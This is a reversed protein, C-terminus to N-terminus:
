PSPNEVQIHFVVRPYINAELNFLLIKSYFKLKLFELNIEIM